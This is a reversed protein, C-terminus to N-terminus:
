ALANPMGEFDFSMVFADHKMLESHMNDSRVCLRARNSVGDTDILTQLETVYEDTRKQM